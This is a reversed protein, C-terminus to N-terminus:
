FYKLIEQQKLLINKKLLEERIEKYNYIEGNFIIIYNGCKSIMPQKAHSNLDLISLRRHGFTIKDNSYIGLDDPGRHKQLNLAKKFLEKNVPKNYRLNIQGLIGCM